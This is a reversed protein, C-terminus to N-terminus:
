ADQFRYWKNFLYLANLLSGNKIRKKDSSLIKLIENKKFIDDLPDTIQDILENNYDEKLDSAWAHDPANFGEKSRYLLDKPLRHSMLEKLLGKPIDNKLNSKQSLSFAFEIIRHDLFPVRGEVSAAMTSKDTLSLINNPLYNKFDNFMKEYSTKFGENQQGRYIDLSRDIIRSNIKNNILSKLTVPNIGSIGTAWSIVPDRFRTAKELDYWKILHYISNRIFYSKTNSFWSPSGWSGQFHRGYGGFIEDAGAGNLLVKIGMDRAKESLYFSPICASDAIPEDLVTLFKDTSGIYDKHNMTFEYHKTQFLKSVARAYDNDKGNKADFNITFTNLYDVKQSALAVITSSDVGGSLFVGVPVDSRMQLQISDNLLYELEERAEEPKINYNEFNNIQWYKKICFEDRDIKMYSAPPLKKVGKWISFPEEVYSLTLYSLLKENDVSINNVERLSKIDSSFYLNSGILIYYLPKIGVRDRAVWLQQKKKDFLAFAFMGNLHDICDIGYEEFLHVIVEADSGTKFQHGKSKLTNRLEIYNYIEGNMVLQLTDNENTIPQKGSEVDIISLRRMGIGFSNDIYVGEDDPGRHLMRDTMRKLDQPNVNDRDFNVIGVIGCM